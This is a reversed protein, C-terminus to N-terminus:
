KYRHICALETHLMCSWMATELTWWWCNTAAIKKVTENCSKVRGCNYHESNGTIKKKGKIILWGQWEAMQWHCHTIESIAICKRTRKNREQYGGEEIHLNDKRYKHQPPPIERPAKSSWVSGWLINLTFSYRDQVKKYYQQQISTTIFQTQL